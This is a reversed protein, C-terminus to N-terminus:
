IIIDFDIHPYLRKLQTPYWSHTLSETRPVRISIYSLGTCGEVLAQIGAETVPGDKCYFLTLRTFRHCYLSLQILVEDNVPMLALSLVKLNSCYTAMELMGAITVSGCDDLHLTDLSCCNQALITVIEDILNTCSTLDVKRLNTCYTFIGRLASGTVGDNVRLNVLSSYHTYLIPEHGILSGETFEVGFLVFKSLNHCYEFM